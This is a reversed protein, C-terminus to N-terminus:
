VNHSRTGGVHPQDEEEDGILADTTNITGSKDDKHQRGVITALNNIVTITDPHEDGLIRQMNQLVQRQMSAAEDLKGQDSLTNALNHMAKITDPHENGLIQRRKELVQQQMSAAEDLKGEDILTIALNSLASITSPHESGLIRQMKELAQRQTSAADDFKGQDGLTIALNSMASITDPHEDGLIRQMNQLVQRQMSAAEDLKGQYSLAIAMNSMATITDPHEDGLIQQRKELVQQRMSAAEDLKGQNSLTVALNSMATITDPHEDGLIHRRKELVQQRMSAAEDLKGQDGLTIALNSMASITDPHEDGLTERFISWAELLNQGAAKLEGRDELYMGSARLLKARLLLDQGQSRGCELVATAHPLYIGCSTWNEFQPSPFSHAVQDLSVAAWKHWDGAQALWERTALHVLRHIAFAEGKEIKILSFDILRDLAHDLELGSGLYHALLDKPIGQRDLFAMFSLLDTVRTRENEDEKQLQEFSLQWTAVVTDPVPSDRRRDRFDTKLLFTQNNLTAQFLDLYKLVTMRRKRVTIYAAAQVIALPLRELTEVLSEVGDLPLHSPTRTKLLETAETQSLPGVLIVQQGYDTLMNAAQEDRSTFLVKGRSSSPIYSALKVTSVQEDTPWFVKSDDANDIIMLWDTDLRQIWRCLLENVMEPHERGLLQVEEAIAAVSESFRAQSSAHVWFVWKLPCREKARYAYEIAIQSKGVGGLGALAVRPHQKLIREIEKFVDERGVFHNEDREFPIILSPQVCAAEDVSTPPVRGGDAEARLVKQQRRDLAAEALDELAGAVQLFQPDNATPFRCVTRHDAGAISFVQERKGLNLRASEPPVVQVSGRGLWSALPTSDAELVSVFMLSEQLNGFRISLDLLDKSGRRLQELAGNSLPTALSAISSVITAYDASPSGRHPVAMFVIGFTAAAVPDDRDKAILLTNKIVLGGMSHGIFVIPKTPDGRRRLTRLGALLNEAFGMIIMINRSRVNADYGFAMVRPKSREMQAPLFDKLWLKDSAPHTWTGYIDGGLGHVAVVDVMSGSPEDLVQLGYRGEPNAPSSHVKGPDATSKSKFLSRVMTVQGIEKLSSAALTAVYEFSFSSVVDVIFIGSRPAPANDVLEPTLPLSSPIAKRTAARTTRITPPPTLDMLGGAMSAKLVEMHQGEEAGAESDSTTHM